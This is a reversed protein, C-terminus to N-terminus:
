YSTTISGSCKPEQKSAFVFPAGSQPEMELREKVALALADFSRRMDQPKTCVFIRVSAPIM